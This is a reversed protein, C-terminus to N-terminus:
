YVISSPLCTFICIAILLALLDAAGSSVCACRMVCVCVGVCVDCLWGYGCGVCM